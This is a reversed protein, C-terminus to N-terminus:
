MVVMDFNCTLWTSTVTIYSPTIVTIEYQLQMDVMYASTISISSYDCGYECDYWVCDYLFFAAIIKSLLLIYVNFQCSIWVLPVAAYWWLTPLLQKIICYLTIFATFENSLPSYIVDLYKLPHYRRIKKENSKSSIAESKRAKRTSYLEHISYSRLVRNM